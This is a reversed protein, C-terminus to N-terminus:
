LWRARKIAFHRCHCKCNTHYIEGVKCVLSVCRRHSERRAARELRGATKCAVQSKTTEIRATFFISVTVMKEFISSDVAFAVEVVAVSPSPERKACSRGHVSITQFFYTMVSVRIQFHSSVFSNCSFCFVNKDRPFIERLLRPFERSNKLGRKELDDLICDASKELFSQTIENFSFIEAFMVPINQFNREKTYFRLKFVTVNERLASQFKRTASKVNM